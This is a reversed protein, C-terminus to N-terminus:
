EEQYIQMKNGSFDRKSLLFSALNLLSLDIKPKNFIPFILLFYNLFMFLVMFLRFNVVTLNRSNKRKTQGLVLGM